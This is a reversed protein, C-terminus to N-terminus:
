CPTGAGHRTDNGHRKRRGGRAMSWLLYLVCGDFVINLWSWIEKSHYGLSYNDRLLEPLFMLVQLTHQSTMSLFDYMGGPRAQESAIRVVAVPFIIGIM